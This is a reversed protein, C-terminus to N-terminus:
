GRGRMRTVKEAVAPQALELTVARLRARTADSVRALLCPGCLEETENVTFLAPVAQRCKDCVLTERRM